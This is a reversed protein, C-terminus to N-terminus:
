HMQYKSNRNSCRDEADLLIQLIKQVGLRTYNYACHPTLTLSNPMVVVEGAFDNPIAPIM